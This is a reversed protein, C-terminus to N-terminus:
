AGWVLHFIPEVAQAAKDATITEFERRAKEHTEKTDYEYNASVSSVANLKDIWVHFRIEPVGLSDQDLLVLIQGYDEHNFIKCFDAM